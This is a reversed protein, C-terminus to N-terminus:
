KLITDQLGAGDVATNGKGCITHILPRFVLGRFLGKRASFTDEAIKGDTKPKFSKPRSARGKLLYSRKLVRGQGSFSFTRPAGSYGAWQQRATVNFSTYGDSGAVAPNILFKNYLYQSYLPLQQGALTANWILLISIFALKRV